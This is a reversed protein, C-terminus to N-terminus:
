PVASLVIGGRLVETTIDRSGLAWTWTMSPPVFLKIRSSACPCEFSTMFARMSNRDEEHHGGVASRHM